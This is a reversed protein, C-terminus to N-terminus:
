SPGPLFARCKPPTGSATDKQSKGDKAKVKDKNKAREKEKDREIKLDRIDEKGQRMAYAAVFDVLTARKLDHVSFRALDKDQSELHQLLLDLSREKEGTTSRRNKGPVGRRDVYEEIAASLLKPQAVGEFDGVVGKIQSVLAAIAEAPQMGSRMADMLATRLDPDDQMAQQFLKQDEASNVEIKVNGAQLSWPAIASPDFPLTM